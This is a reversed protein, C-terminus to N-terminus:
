QSEPPTQLKALRQDIAARESIPVLARAKKLAQREEDPKNLVRYATALRLWGDPDDPSDELRQALRTVMANILQQRDEASMDAIAALDEAAPTGPGVPARRQAVLAKLDQVRNAIDDRWPANDPSTALLAQWRTLAEEPRNNQLLGLGVYYLARPNDPSRSLARSFALDAAATIRGEAVAVLAEGLFAHIDANDPAQKLANQYARVARGPQDAGMASRGLLLWGDVREPHVALQQELEDLLAAMSKGDMGPITTALPPPAKRSPADPTGLWLYLPWAALIVTLLCVIVALTPAYRRHDTEEARSDAKLLRHQIELRAAQADDAAILGSSLDVALDDLQQRYLSIESERRSRLGKHGRFLGYLGLALSLVILLGLLSWIM